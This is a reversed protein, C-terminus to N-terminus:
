ELEFLEDFQNVIPIRRGMGFAKSTVRLVPPAQRRKYENQRIRRLLESVLELDAGKQILQKPAIGDELLASVLLSVISYDFPDVQGPALEASPVKTLCNSPIRDTGAQQNVWRSLTYVDTKSLDAIVALGGSMDGYLTCYGLALETKNGTSLVLWNFKNSLAMLLNGRVRAQINEETVDRQLGKFRPKLASEYAAVIEKIPHILYEINLNEALKRADDRSHTSSYRSPMSVGHVHNFGLADVAICAVLSSDIGGSLGLVCDSYGTKMFYDQVGLVLAKYLKEERLAKVLQKPQDDELDVMILEEKFAIGQALLEGRGNVVLSQGDFILEDQAGILNCYLFPVGTKRAKEQVLIFRDELRGDHYPSASINVIMQVNKKKLQTALDRSYDQDWLDECIQIGIRTTKGAIELDVFGPNGGAQFYRDEDFVDYTPLLMKNYSYTVAGSYCVTASNYLKKGERHVHGIILPITTQAAITKLGNINQQVFGSQYLLDQPPYGTIALEPFIVLEAGQKIARDYFILIKQQNAKLAGVTPNIQCLAVKM